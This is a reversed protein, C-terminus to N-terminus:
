RTDRSVPCFIQYWGFTVLTSSIVRRPPSTGYPVVAEMTRPGFPTMYLPKLRGAWTPMRRACSRREPASSQFLVKSSSSFAAGATPGMRGPPPRVTITAKPPFGIGAGMWSGTASTMSATTITRSHHVQSQLHELHQGFVQRPAQASLTATRSSPSRTSGLIALSNSNRLDSLKTKARSASLPRTIQRKSVPSGVCMQAPTEKLSRHAGSM